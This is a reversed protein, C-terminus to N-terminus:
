RPLVSDKPVGVAYTGDEFKINLYEGKVDVLEGVLIDGAKHEVDVYKAFDDNFGAGVVDLNFETFIRLTIDEKLEINMRIIIYVLFSFSWGFTTAEDNHLLLLIM